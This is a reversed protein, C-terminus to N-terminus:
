RNKEVIDQYIKLYRANREEISLMGGNDFKARAHKSWKKLVSRNALVKEIQEALQKAVDKFVINSNIKAVEESPIFIHTDLSPNKLKILAGDKGDEILEPLAFQKTAIIPTGAALSDVAAMGYTDGRTPFMFLDAPIFFKELMDKKSFKPAYLFVNALNHRAILEQADNSIVHLEVEAEHNKNIKEMAVLLDSLGKRGSQNGVFLLKLKSSKKIISNDASTLKPAPITPYIVHTKKEIEKWDSELLKELSRKAAQSMCVIAKCNKHLLFNKAETITENGKSFGTLSTAREIDVIYPGKISDPNPSSMNVFQYIDVGEKSDTNAFTAASVLGIIRRVVPNHKYKRYIPFFRVMGGITKPVVYDVGKPPNSVLSEYIMHLPKYNRYQIKVTIPKSM